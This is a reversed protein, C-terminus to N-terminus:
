KKKMVLIKKKVHRVKLNDFYHMIQEYDMDLDDLGLSETPGMIEGSSNLPSNIQTSIEGNNDVGAANNCLVQSPIIVNCNDINSSSTDSQVISYPQASNNTTSSFSSSAATIATTMSTTSQMPIVNDNLRQQPPTVFGGNDEM